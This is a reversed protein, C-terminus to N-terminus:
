VSIERHDKPHQAMLYPYHSKRGVGPPVRPELYHRIGETVASWNPHDVMIAQSEADDGDRLAQHFTENARLADSSPGATAQFAFAFVVLTWLAASRIKYVLLSACKQADFVSM